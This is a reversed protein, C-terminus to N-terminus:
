HFPMFPFCPPSGALSAGARIPRISVPLTGNLHGAPASATSVNSFFAFSNSACASALRAIDEDSEKSSFDSVLVRPQAAVNRAQGSRSEESAVKKVHGSYEDCARRITKPVQSRLRENFLSVRDHEM